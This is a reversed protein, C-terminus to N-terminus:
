GLKLGGDVYLIQGTIYRGADSAFLVAAGACDDPIGPRGMPVAKSARQMGDGTEFSVKNRLTNFWGPSICNVTINHKAGGWAATRTIGHIASKSAAYPLLPPSGRDGQVSGINIIRGGGEPKFISMVERILLLPVTINVRLQREIQEATQGDLFDYRQIAGNNVLINLGGLQRITEPILTAVHDLDNLDGTLAIARHGQATLAAVAANCVDADIDQIAVAAGHQVYAQAISLGIGRAAGTLLAVKNDLRFSDVHSAIPLDSM